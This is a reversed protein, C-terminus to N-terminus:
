DTDFILPDGKKQPVEVPVIEDKLRSSKIAAEAKHQSQAAFDDQEEPLIFVNRWM